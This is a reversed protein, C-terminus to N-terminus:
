RYLHCLLVFFTRYGLVLWNSVDPATACAALQYKMLGNCRFRDLYLPIYHYGNRSPVCCQYIREYEEPRRQVQEDALAAEMRWLSFEFSLRGKATNFCRRASNQGSQDENSLVQYLFDIYQLALRLAKIKSLKHSPITPISQRLANLGVNLEQTRQRERANILCFIKLYFFITGQYSHKSLAM